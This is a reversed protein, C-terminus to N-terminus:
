KTGSGTDLLKGEAPASQVGQLADNKDKGHTPVTRPNKESTSESTSNRTRRKAPGM